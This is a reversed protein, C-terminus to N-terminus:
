IRGKGQEGVWGSGSRPGPKGRYQPMYLKSSWPAERGLSTWSPWRRSCISSSVRTRPPHEYDDIPHFVPGGIYSSSFTGLLMSKKQLLNQSLHFVSAAQSGSKFSHKVSLKLYPGWKRESTV